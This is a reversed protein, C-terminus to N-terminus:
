LADSGDDQQSAVCLCLSILVIYVSVCGGAAVRVDHCSLWLSDSHKCTWSDIRLSRFMKNVRTKMVTAHQTSIKWWPAARGRGWHLLVYDKNKISEWLPSRSSWCACLTHFFVSLLVSPLFSFGPPRNTNLLTIVVSGCWSSNSPDTQSVNCFMSLERNEM